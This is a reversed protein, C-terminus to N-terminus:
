LISTRHFVNKATIAINNGAAAAAIIQGTNMLYDAPVCITLNEYLM